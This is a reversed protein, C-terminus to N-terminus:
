LFPNKNNDYGELPMDANHGLEGQTETHDIVRKKGKGSKFMRRYKVGHDTGLDRAFLVCTNRIKHPQCWESTHQHLDQARARVGVGRKERL